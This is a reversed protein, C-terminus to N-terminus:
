KSSQVQQERDLKLMYADKAAAAAGMLLCFVVIRVILM